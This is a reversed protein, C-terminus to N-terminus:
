IHPKTSASHRGIENPVRSCPLTSRIKKKWILNEKEKLNKDEMSLRSLFFRILEKVHDTRKKDDSFFIRDHPVRGDDRRKFALLIEKNKEKEKKKTVCVCM